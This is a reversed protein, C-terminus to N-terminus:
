AVEAPNLGNKNCYDKWEEITMHGKRKNCPRCSTRGNEVTTEGGFKQALYHDYTLIVGRIGCYRCTYNDRFYTRWVISQDIQRTAKRVFAKGIPTVPDDTQKLFEQWQAESPTTETYYISDQDHSFFPLLLAVGDHGNNYLVGALQWTDGVESTPIEFTGLKM